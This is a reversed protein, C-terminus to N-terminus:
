CDFCVCVRLFLCVFMLLLLGFLYFCLSIIFVIVVVVSVVFFSLVLAVVIWHSWLADALLTDLCLLCSLLSAFHSFLLLLLGIRRCFLVFCFSRVFAVVLWCSVLVL